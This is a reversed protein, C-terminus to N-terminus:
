LSQASTEWVSTALQKNNDLFVVMCQFWQHSWEISTQSATLQNTSPFDHILRSLLNFFQAVTTRQDFTWLEPPNLSHLMSTLFLVVDCKWLIRFPSSLRKRYYRSWSPTSRHRPGLILEIQTLEASKQNRSYVHKWARITEHFKSNQKWKFNSFHNSCIHCMLFWELLRILRDFDIMMSANLGYAIGHILQWGGRGWWRPDKPRVVFWKRRSM